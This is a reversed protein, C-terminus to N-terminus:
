RLGKLKEEHKLILTRLESIEKRLLAIEDPPNVSAPKTKGPNKKLKISGITLTHWGERGGAKDACLLNGAIHYGSQKRIEENFKNRFKNFETHRLAEAYNLYLTKLSVPTNKSKYLEYILRLVIEPMSDPTDDSALWNAQCGKGLSYPASLLDKNGGQILITKAAVDLILTKQENEPDLVIGQILNVTEEVPMIQFASKKVWEKLGRSRMSLVHSGKGTVPCHPDRDEIRPDMESLVVVPLEPLSNIAWDFVADGHPSSELVMDLLLLKVQSSNAKLYAMAKRGDTEYRQKFGAIKIATDLKTRIRLDGPGLLHPEKGIMDDLILIIKDPM